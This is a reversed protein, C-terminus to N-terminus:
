LTLYYAFHSAIHMCSHFAHLSTANYLIACAIVGLWAIRCLLGYSSSAVLIAFGNLVLHVRKENPKLVDLRTSAFALGLVIMKGVVSNKANTYCALLQTLLDIRLFLRLMLPDADYYWIAKYLHYVFSSLCFMNYAYVRIGVSGILLGPLMSFAHVFEWSQGLDLVTNSSMSIYYM